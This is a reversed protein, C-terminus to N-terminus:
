IVQKSQHLLMITFIKLASGPEYNARGSILNINYKETEDAKKEASIIIEGNLANAFVVSCNYAKTEVLAQACLNETLYQLDGDLSLIIDEGHIPQKTSIEGQPILSGNPAAEYRLEGDTGTLLGDYYLELGEIGNNDPDVRGVIKGLADSHLIRKSSIEPYIGKYNWSKIENGIEFDVNRKIYFFSNRSEIQHHIESEDIDLFLSLIESLEKKEVVENPRIGINFSQVSSSIVNLNRDYISGRAAELVEVKERFSLAQNQFYDSKSFQLDYVTSIFFSAGTFFIANILAFLSIEKIKKYKM